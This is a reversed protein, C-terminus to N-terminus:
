PIISVMNITDTMLSCLKSRGKLPFISRTHSPSIAEAMAGKSDRYPEWQARATGSSLLPVFAWGPRGLSSEEVRPNGLLRAM